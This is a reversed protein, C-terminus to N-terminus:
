SYQRKITELISRELTTDKGLLSTICDEILAVKDSNSELSDIHHKAIRLINFNVIMELKNYLYSCLEDDPSNLLLKEIEICCDYYLDKVTALDYCTTIKHLSPFINNDM